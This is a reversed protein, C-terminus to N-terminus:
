LGPFVRPWTVQESMPRALLLELPQDDEDQASQNEAPIALIGACPSEPQLIREVNVVVDEESCCPCASASGPYREADVIQNQWRSSELSQRM